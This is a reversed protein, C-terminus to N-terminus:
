LLLLMLVADIRSHCRIIEMCHQYNIRQRLDLGAHNDEHLHHCCCGLILVLNNNFNSAHGTANDVNENQGNDNNNNNNSLTFEEIEMSTETTEAKTTKQVNDNGNGNGIKENCM